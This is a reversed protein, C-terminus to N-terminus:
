KLNTIELRFNELSTSKVYNSNIKNYLIKNSLIDQIVFGDIYEYDSPKSCGYNLGCVEERYYYAFLCSGIKSSYFVEELEYNGVIKNGKEIKMKNLTQKVNDIKESCLLKKQFIDNKNEEDEGFTDFNFSGNGAEPSSEYNSPSINLFDNSKQDKNILFIIIVILIIIIALPIYKIYKKYNISEKRDAQNAEPINNKQEKKIKRRKVFYIIMNVIGMLLCIDGVLGIANGIVGVIIFRGTIWCILGIVLLVQWSINKKM